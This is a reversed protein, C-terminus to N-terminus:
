ILLEPSPVWTDRHNLLGELHNQYVCFNSFWHILRRIFVTAQQKDQNIYQNQHRYHYGYTSQRQCNLLTVQGRGDWNGPIGM